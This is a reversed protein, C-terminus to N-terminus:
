GSRALASMAVPSPQAASSNARIYRAWEAPHKGNALCADAERRGAEQGRTTPQDYQTLFYREALAPGRDHGFLEAMIVRFLSSRFSLDVVGRAKLLETAFGYIYGRSFEDQAASPMSGSLVEFSASQVWLLKVIQGVAELERQMSAPPEDVVRTPAPRDIEQVFDYGAKLGRGALRIFMFGGVGMLFFLIIIGKAMTIEESTGVAIGYDEFSRLVRFLERRTSITAAWFIRPCCSV